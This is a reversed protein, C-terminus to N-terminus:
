YSLAVRAWSHSKDKKETKHGEVNNADGLRKGYAPLRYGKGVRRSAVAAYRALNKIRCCRCAIICGHGIAHKRYNYKPM